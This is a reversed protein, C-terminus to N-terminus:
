NCHQAVLLQFASQSAITTSTNSGAFTVTIPYNFAPYASVSPFWYQLLEGNNNATILAGQFQVQVPYSVTFCSGLLQGFTPNPNVGCTIFDASTFGDCEARCANDYQVVGATTQVCVPDFNTPCVCSNNPDCSVFDNQTYGDCEAFCSNSYEIVGAPTQVCVPAYVTPCLCSSAGCDNNLEFLDYLNNIVITQNDQVVSIPFVINLHYTSNGTPTSVLQLLQAQNTVTITQGSANIVSIPYVISYCTFDFVFDNVIQINACEQILAFFEAEDDITTIAGEQQVQFPFVIGDIYFTNSESVLVELLGEFNSVVVQTGNNYELTIPYVFNFCFAQDQTTLTTKGSVNHAKKLANLTSRLSISKSAIAENEVPNSDSCSYFITATVTLLLILLKFKKM